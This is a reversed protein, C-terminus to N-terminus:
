LKLIMRIVKGENESCKIRPYFKFKNSFKQILGEIKKASRFCDINIIKFPTKDILSILSSITFHFTHPVKSISMNLITSNACNPVEIFIFGNLNLNQLIKNFFEIPNILHELVHSIWVSDFKKDITFDEAFGVICESKKLKSNILKVNESDPEIGLVVYGNQEFWYTAQGQGAGIELINTSHKLFEKCYAIQSVWDRKKGLSEQDTYNSDVPIKADWINEAGWHKKTYISNVKSILENRSGKGLYLDCYKCYVVPV